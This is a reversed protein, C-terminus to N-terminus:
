TDRNIKLYIPKGSDPVFVINPKVNISKLQKPQSALLAWQDDTYGFIFDLNDWDRWIQKKTELYHATNLPTQEIEPFQETGHFNVELGHFWILVNEM